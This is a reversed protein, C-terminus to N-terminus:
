NSSKINKRIKNFRSCAILVDGVQFVSNWFLVHPLNSATAVAFTLQAQHAGARAPAPPPLPRVNGRLPKRNESARSV